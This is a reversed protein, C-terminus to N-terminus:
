GCACLNRVKTRTGQEYNWFSLGDSDDAVVLSMEYPHFLLMSTM